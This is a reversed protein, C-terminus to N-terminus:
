LKLCSCDELKGILNHKMIGTGICTHQPAWMTYLSIRSEAHLEPGNQGNQSDLFFTTKQLFTWAKRFQAEIHKQKMM